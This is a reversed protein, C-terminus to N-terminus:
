ALTLQDLERRERRGHGARQAVATDGLRGRAQGGLRSDGDELDGERAPGAVWGLGVEGGDEAV